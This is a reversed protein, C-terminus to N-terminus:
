GREALPIWIETLLEQQATNMPSNLYEEICPADVLVEGSNPLWQEFLWRYSAQLASYPGKHLLVAYRGVPVETREMGEGPATDAPLAVCAASRLAEPPTVSPDDYYMAFIRAPALTQRDVWHDLAEFAQCIQIYPGRHPRSVLPIAADLRRITVHM